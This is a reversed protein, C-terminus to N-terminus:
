HVRLAADIGAAVQVARPGMGWTLTPSYLFAWPADARILRYASRYLTRRAANDVTRAARDLLANVKPNDYGQWWAGAVGGHFKERLVRWTSLPSSDFCCADDIRKAKVMDAYAPRDAFARVEVEIGARAYQERILRGLLPAEDPLITPIDIVLKLGDRGAERILRRAAEPDHPYLPTDPDYGFHLPTLPGNLRRAAGARAHAILSDVDLAYNLAQRVRRDACPGCRANLMFIVAVKGEREIFRARGDAEAKERTGAFLDTAIDAAGALLEARRATEDPEARWTIGRYAAPGRWSNGVAEMQVRSEDTAVTRYSGTGAAAGPSLIPIEVLLDLLDAMPEPTVIRVHSADPASVEAAGLYGHYLGSTGLEGPLSAARARDLSAVVADATLRTGDHFRVGDRLEFTWTAANEALHWRAALAPAYYGGTTAALDYCVLADYAAHRLNLRDRTDTWVHPDLLRVTPQVVRLWGDEPHAV